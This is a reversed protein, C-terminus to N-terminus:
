PQVGEESCGEEGSLADLLQQEVWQKSTRISESSHESNPTSVTRTGNSNTTTTSILKPPASNLEHKYYMKLLAQEYQQLRNNKAHDLTVVEGKTPPRLWQWNPSMQPDISCKSGEPWATVLEFPNSNFIVDSIYASHVQDIWSHAQQIRYMKLDVVFKDWKNQREGQERKMRLLWLYRSNTHLKARQKIHLRRRRCTRLFTARLRRLAEVAAKAQREAENARAEAPARLAAQLQNDYFPNSGCLYLLEYDDIEGRAIQAALAKFRKPQIM